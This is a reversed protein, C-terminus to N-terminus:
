KTLINWLSHDTKLDTLNSYPIEIEAFDGSAHSVPITIVVGKNTWYSFYDIDKNVDTSDANTLNQIWRENDTANIENKIYDLLEQTQKKHPGIYKGRKLLNALEQNITLLDSLKIVLQKKLDINLTYIFNNPHASQQYNVYGLFRISLFDSNQKMVEYKLEYTVPDGEGSFTQKYRLANDKIIGNIKAQADTDTDDTLQPYKIVVENEKFTESKLKYTKKTTEPQTDQEDTQNTSNETNMKEKEAVTKEENEKTQENIAKKAHEETQEPETTSEQTQTSITATPKNQKCATLSCTLTLIVTFTIIKIKRM